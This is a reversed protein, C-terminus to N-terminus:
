PYLTLINQADSLYIFTIDDTFDLPFDGVIAKKKDGFKDRFVCSRHDSKNFITYKIARFLYM